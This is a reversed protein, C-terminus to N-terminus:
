VLSLWIVNWLKYLMGRAADYLLHERPVPWCYEPSAHLPESWFVSILANANVNQLPLSRRSFTWRHKWWIHCATQSYCFYNLGTWIIQYLKYWYPRSTVNGSRKLKERLRWSAENSSARWAFARRIRLRRSSPFFTWRSSSDALRRMGSRRVNLGEFGSNEHREVWGLPLM